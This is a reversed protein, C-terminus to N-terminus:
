EFINKQNILIIEAIDKMSKRKNMSVNRIYEYAEKESMNNRKILVGKAKEIVRRESLKQEAADLRSKIGEIERCRNVAIEIAPFLARDEVPKVIYGMAGCEAAKEVFDKDSYATLMIIGIDPNEKHILKAATIGDMMPMKIDLLVIDPKIERCMDVADFGDGAEGVVEYGELEIRERIDARIIVEDDAIVIRTKM